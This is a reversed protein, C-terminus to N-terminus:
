HIYDCLYKTIFEGANSNRTLEGGLNGGIMSIVDLITENKPKAGTIKRGAYRLLAEIMADVLSPMYKDCYARNKFPRIYNLPPIDAMFSAIVFAVDERVKFSTLISYIVMERLSSLLTEKVPGNWNINKLQELSTPLSMEENLFNEIDKITYGEELLGKSINIFNYIVNAGHQENLVSYSSNLKSEYHENLNKKVINKVDIQINKM